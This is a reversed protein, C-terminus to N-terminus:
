NIITFDTGIEYKDPNNGGDKEMQKDKVKYEKSELAGNIEYADGSSNTAYNYIYVGSNVPDRPLTPLTVTQGVLNVKVWGTGNISRNAASDPTSSGNCPASTGSCLVESASSTAEQIAILIASNLAKLDTLRVRDRTKKNLEIPDIILFTVVALIGIIAIVVLLEVLTFGKISTKRM